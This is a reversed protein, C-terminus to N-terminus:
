CSITRHVSGKAAKVNELNVRRPVLHQETVLPMHLESFLIVARTRCNYYHSWGLQPSIGRCKLKEGDM